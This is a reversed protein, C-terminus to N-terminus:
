CPLFTFALVGMVFWLAAFILRYGFVLRFDVGQRVSPSAMWVGNNREEVSFRTLALGHGNTMLKPYSQAPAVALPLAVALAFSLIRQWRARAHTAM